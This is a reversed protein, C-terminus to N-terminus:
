TEQGPQYETESLGFTWAIAEDASSLSPPVRLYYHRRTSSDQVQVYHAVREPDRTGLEIEILKGRRGVDIQKGGVMEIFRENGLREQIARRVAANPEQMWEERTVQEPYLLLKEPVPIGHWAYAGWGDRYQICPGSASHLRGQADRELFTPKCVVWAEKNGLCYGSVMENFRALHIAKNKKFVEHFFRYFALSRAHSYAGVSDQTSSEVGTSVSPLASTQVSDLVSDWM